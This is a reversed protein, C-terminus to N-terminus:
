RRGRGFTGRLFRLALIVVGGLILLVTARTSDSPVFRLTAWVVAGIVLAFILVTIFEQFRNNGMSTQHLPSAVEGRCYM